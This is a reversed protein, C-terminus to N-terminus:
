MLHLATDVADEFKKLASYLCRKRVLCRPTEGIGVKSHAVPEFKAIAVYESKTSPKIKKEKIKNFCNQASRWSQHPEHGGLYM